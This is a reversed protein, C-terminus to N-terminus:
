LSNNLVYQETGTSSTYRMWIVERRLGLQRLFDEIVGLM